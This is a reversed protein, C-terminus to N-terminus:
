PEKLFAELTTIYEDFKEYMPFHGCDDIVVLQASPLQTKFVYAQEIPVTGDQKGFIVLTPPIINKLQPTLDTANVSAWAKPTSHAIGPQTAYDRDKSWTDFPIAKINHLWARFAWYAYPKWNRLPRLLHYLVPLKGGLKVMPLVERQLQDSLRGTVVGDVFILKQVRQPAVNATLYASIQGGMSHGAVIFKDIGFHDALKIVREAQRGISYDGDKPKDSDGFGLLDFSVCFYREKLREITSTWVGRHSMLGHIFIIPTNSKSGATTCVIRNGEVNIFDTM